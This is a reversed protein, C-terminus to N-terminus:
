IKKLLNGCIVCSFNLDLKARSYDNLAEKLYRQRCLKCEFYEETYIVRGSILCRFLKHKNSCEKDKPGVNVNCIPCKETTKPDSKETEIVMTESKLFKKIYGIYLWTQYDQNDNHEAQYWMLLSSYYNQISKALLKNIFDSFYEPALYLLNLLIVKSIHNELDESLNFKAVIESQIENILERLAAKKKSKSSLISKEYTAFYAKLFKRYNVQNTAFVMLIDSFNLPTKCLYLKYSEGEFKSLNNIIKNSMQYIIDFYPSKESLNSSIVLNCSKLAFYNPPGLLLKVAKTTSYAAGFIGYIGKKRQVTAEYENIDFLVDAGDMFFLEIGNDYYLLESLNAPFNHEYMVTAEQNFKGVM